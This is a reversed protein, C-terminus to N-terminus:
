IVVPCFGGEGGDVGDEEDKRIRAASPSLQDSGGLTRRPVGTATKPAASASHKLPMSTVRYAWIPRTTAIPSAAVQM